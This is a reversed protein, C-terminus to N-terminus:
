RPKQDWSFKANDFLCPRLGCHYREGPLDPRRIPLWSKRHCTARQPRMQRLPIKSRRLSRQRSALRQLLVLLLNLALRLALPVKVSHPLAQQLSLDVLLVPRPLDLPNASHVRRPPSPHRASLAPLLPSLLRVLRAQEQHQQQLALALPLNASRPHQVPPLVLLQLLRHAKGSPQLQRPSSHSIPPELPVSAELRLVLVLTPLRAALAALLQLHQSLRVLRLPRVSPHFAAVAVLQAALGLDLRAELPQSPKSHRSLDSPVVPARRNKRSALRVPPDFLLHRVLRLLPEVSPPPLRLLRQHGLLVLAVQQQALHHHRALRQLSAPLQGEALLQFPLPRRNNNNNNLHFPASPQLPLSRQRKLPLELLNGM